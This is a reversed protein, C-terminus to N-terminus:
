ASSVNVASSNGDRMPLEFVWVRFWVRNISSSNGDRMPLEFVLVGVKPSRDQLHTEMGWLFNLFVLAQTIFVAYHETEMGWLFNLFRAHNSAFRFNIIRKWGEYSTWFCILHRPLWKNRQYTEMGWLFNLFVVEFTNSAGATVRKWGEYSTWFCFGVSSSAAWFACNGDRM